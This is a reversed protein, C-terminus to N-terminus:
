KLRQVIVANLLKAEQLTQDEDTLEKNPFTTMLLFSSAAFVPYHQVIFQRIDHIRHSQNFKQVVRSGDALRIQINTTPVSDDISMVNVFHKFEEEPSSPTSVITPTPSGLKQGEGSFPKFKLKHRLYEERRHDEMDLSVQGGHVLRQLELPIEGRGVSELFRSNAPDNYTRLEGDDLSFGNKWLKLLIQVMARSSEAAWHDVPVAGHEEAEKFLEEVIENPNRKKPPGVIQQGSHESGGAYFRQGEEGDSKSQENKKLDNMSAIKSHNGSNVAPKFNTANSFVPAEQQIPQHDREDKYFSALALQVDWEAARLHLAAREETAGTVRVFRETKERQAADAM